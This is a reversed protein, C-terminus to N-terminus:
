YTRPYEFVYGWRWPTPILPHGFLRAGLYMVDGMLPMKSNIKDRLIVDAHKRDEASGGKWYEIDHEICIDTFDNKFISNLWLTCSDTTFEKPPIVEARADASERLTEINEPEFTQDYYIASLALIAILGIIMEKKSM